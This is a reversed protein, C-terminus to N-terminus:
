STMLNHFNSDIWQSLLPDCSFSYISIYGNSLKVAGGVQCFTVYFHPLVTCWISDTRVKFKRLTCRHTWDEYSGATEMRYFYFNFYSDHYPIWMSYEVSSCIIMFRKRFNLYLNKYEELMVLLWSHWLWWPTRQHILKLLNAEISGISAFLM